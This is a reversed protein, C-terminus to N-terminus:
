NNEDIFMKRRMPRYDHGDEELANTAPEEEPKLSDLDTEFALHNM